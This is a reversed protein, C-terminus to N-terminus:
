DNYGGWFYNLEDPLEVRRLYMEYVSGDKMRVFTRCRTEDHKEEETELYMLFSDPSFEEVGQFLEGCCGADTRTMDYFCTQYCEVPSIGKTEGEKFLYKM